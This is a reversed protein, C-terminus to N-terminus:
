RRRQSIGEDVWGTLLLEEVRFEKQLAELLDHSHIIPYAPEPSLFRSHSREHFRGIYVSIFKLVTKQHFEKIAEEGSVEKM